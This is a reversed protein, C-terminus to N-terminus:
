LPLRTQGAQRIRRRRRISPRIENPWQRGQGFHVGRHNPAKECVHGEHRDACIKTKARLTM